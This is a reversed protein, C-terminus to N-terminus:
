PGARTAQKPPCVQDSFSGFVCCRSKGSRFNCRTKAATARVRKVTWSPRPIASNVSECLLPEVRASTKMITASNTLARPRAQSSAPILCLGGRSGDVQLALEPLQWM